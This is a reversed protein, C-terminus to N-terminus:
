LHRELASVAREFDQAGGRGGENDKLSGASTNKAGTAM